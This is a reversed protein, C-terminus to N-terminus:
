SAFSNGNCSIMPDGIKLVGGKAEICDALETPKMTLQYRHQRVVASHEFTQGLWSLCHKQGQRLQRLHLIIAM